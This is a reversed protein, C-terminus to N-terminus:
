EIIKVKDLFIFDGLYSEFKSKGISLIRRDVSGGECVKEEGSEFYYDKDSVM